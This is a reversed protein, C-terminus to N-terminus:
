EGGSAGGLVLDGVGPTPPVTRQTDWSDRIGAFGYRGGQSSAPVRGVESGYSEFM